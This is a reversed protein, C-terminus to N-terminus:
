VVLGLEKDYLEKKSLIFKIEKGEVSERWVKEIENLKLPVEEENRKVSISSPHTKVIKHLLPVSVPVFSNDDVEIRLLYERLLPEKNKIMKLVYDLVNLSRERPDEIRRLLKFDCSLMPLDRYVRDVWEQYRSIVRPHIPIEGKENKPLEEETRKIIDESYPHPSEPEILYIEGGSENYRAVRGMRQILSIPPAIETVMVDSSIDVGAEIVQTSVVIFSSQKSLERLREIKERRERSAFRGHILMVQIGDKFKGVIKSYITQAREVTNVVVLNRRNLDILEIPDKKSLIIRFEKEKERKVFEDEYAPDEPILKFSYFEFISRVFNNLARIMRRPITASMLFIPVKNKCLFSLVTLFIRRLNEDLLVMHAEDFIIASNIISAQTFYDYGYSKRRAILPIKQTNLKMVDWTFTDITTFTLPYLLFPSKSYDMMQIGIVNEGFLKEATLYADEVISRLPLVHIVKEFFSSDARSFLFLSYTFATKGYGTPARILYFPVQSNSLDEEAQKLVEQILPRPSLEKGKIYSIKDLAQQYAKLLNM